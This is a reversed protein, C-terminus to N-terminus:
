AFILQTLKQPIIMDRFVQHCFAKVKPGVENWYTQYFYTHIRDPGPAKLPKFTYIGKFFESDHLPEALSQFDANGLIHINSDQHLYVSHTHETTFFYQYYAQITNYIDTPIFCWNGVTDKLAIIRNRRKQQLTSMHFFKTNADGENLWTIHSKLKWFGEELRLINSYDKTLQELTHLFLSTPYHVFSQIGALRALIKCKNEFINDFTNKNRHM